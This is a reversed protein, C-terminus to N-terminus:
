KTLAEKAAEAKKTLEEQEAKRAAVIQNFVELVPEEDLLDLGDAMSSWWKPASLTHTWITSFLEATALANASANAANGGLLQRRFEDQRLTDKHSLRTKIKFEGAWREGSAAVVNITFSKENLNM